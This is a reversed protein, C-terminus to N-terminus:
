IKIHLNLFMQELAGKLDFYDANKKKLDRWDRPLEGGMVASLTEREGQSTYVKGV